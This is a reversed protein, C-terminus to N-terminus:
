VSPHCILVGVFDNLTYAAVLVSFRSHIIWMWRQMSSIVVLLKLQMSDRGAGSVEWTAPPKLETDFSFAATHTGSGSAWTQMFHLFVLNVTTWRRTLARHSGGGGQVSHFETTRAAGSGCTRSPRTCRRSSWASGGAACRWSALGRTRTSSRSSSWSSVPKWTATQRWAPLHTKQISM